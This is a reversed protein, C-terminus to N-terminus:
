YPIQDSNTKYRHEDYFESATQGLVRNLRNTTESILDSLEGIFEEVKELRFLEAEIREVGDNIARKNLEGILSSFTKPTNEFHEM